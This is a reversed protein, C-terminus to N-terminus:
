ENDMGSLEHLANTIADCYGNWYDRDVDGEHYSDLAANANKLENLLWENM